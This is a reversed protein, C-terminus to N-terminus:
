LKIHFLKVNYISDDFRTIKASLETGFFLSTVKLGANLINAAVSIMRDVVDAKESKIRSILDKIDDRQNRIAKLKANIQEKTRDPMTSIDVDNNKIYKM